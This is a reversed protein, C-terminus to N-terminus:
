FLNVEENFLPQMSTLSIEESNMEKLEKSVIIDSSFPKLIFSKLKPCQKIQLYNLSPFKINSGVCFRKLVPLDKLELFNLRPFLVIPIIEEEEGLDETLLIEEMVKCDKVSLHKLQEMVRAMSSSLLYKLSGSGEVKLSRLNQFRSKTQINTLKFSLRARHQNQLLEESDIYSLELTELNPFVV